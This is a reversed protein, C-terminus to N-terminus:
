SGRKACSRLYSINYRIDRLQNRTIKSIKSELVQVQTSRAKSYAIGCGFRTGKLAYLIPTGTDVSQVNKINTYAVLEEPLSIGLLHISCAFKSLARVVEKRSSSLKVLPDTKECMVDFPVGIHSLTSCKFFETVCALCEEIAKGQVVGMIMYPPEREMLERFNNITTTADNHVDPAVIVDPSVKKAACLLEEVPLPQGLEDAGNDLMLFRGGRNLCTRAYKKDTLVLQALVFDFDTLPRLEKVLPTPIEIAIEM